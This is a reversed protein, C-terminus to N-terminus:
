DQIILRIECGEIDSIILIKEDSSEDFSYEAGDGDPFEFQHLLEGEKSEGEHVSLMQDELVIFFGDEYLNDEENLRKVKGEIKKEPKESVTLNETVAM